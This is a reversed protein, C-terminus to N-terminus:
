SCDGNIHVGSVGSLFNSHTINHSAARLTRTATTGLMSFVHPGCQSASLYGIQQDSKM